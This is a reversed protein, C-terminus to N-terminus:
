LSELYAVLDDVEPGTLNLPKLTSETNYFQVVDKLTPEAGNHMYPATNKLDRMMPTNIFASTAPPGAGCGPPLPTAACAPDPPACLPANPNAPNPNRCGLDSSRATSGDYRRFDVQPVGTNHVLNDTFDPGGHCEICGAKGQFLKEGNLAAPSMTGQDFSTRPPSLTKIYAELAAAIEGAHTNCVDSPASCDPDGTKPGRGGPVFERMHGFIPKRIAASLTGVDGNWFYPATKALDWLAPPDRPGDFDTPPMPDLNAAQTDHVMTGLKASAAGVAHCTACSEGNEFRSADNFIKRGEAVLADRSTEATAAATANLIAKEQGKAFRVNGHTTDALTTEPPDDGGALSAVVYGAVVIAAVAALVRIPKRMM